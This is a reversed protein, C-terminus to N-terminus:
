YLPIADRPLYRDVCHYYNINICVPSTSLRVTSRNNARM